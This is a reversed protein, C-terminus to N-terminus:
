IEEIKAKKSLDAELRSVDPIQNTIKDISISSKSSPPVTARSSSESSKQLAHLRTSQGITILFCPNKWDNTEKYIQTNSKLMGGEFDVVIQKIFNTLNSLKPFDPTEAWDLRSSWWDLRSSSM